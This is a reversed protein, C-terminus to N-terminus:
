LNTYDRYFCKEHYEQNHCFIFISDVQSMSHILPVIDEGLAGSIIMCAKEDNITKLFKICEISNTYKNITNIVRRLQATTNRCDPNKDDINSDLWILLVNQVMEINGLRSSVGNKSSSATQKEANSNGTISWINGM